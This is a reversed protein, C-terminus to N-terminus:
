WLTEEQEKKTVPLLHAKMQSLAAAAVNKNASQDASDKRLVTQKVKVSIVQVPCFAKHKCQFEVEELHLIGRIWYTM